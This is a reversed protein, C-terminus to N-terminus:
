ILWRRLPWLSTEPGLKIGVSSHVLQIIRFHHEPDQDDHHHFIINSLCSTKFEFQFFSLLDDQHDCPSRSASPLRVELLARTVRSRMHAAHSPHLYAQISCMLSNCMLRFKASERNWERCNCTVLRFGGEISRAPTSTIGMECLPVGISLYRVDSESERPQCRQAEM